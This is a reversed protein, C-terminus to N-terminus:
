SRQRRDPLILLTRPLRRRPHTAGKGADREVTSVGKQKGQEFIKKKKKKRKKGIGDDGRRKVGERAVWGGEGGRRRRAADRKL